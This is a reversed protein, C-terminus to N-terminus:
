LEYYNKIRQINRIRNNISPHTNTEINRAQEPVLKMLVEDLKNPYGSIYLLHSAYSDAQYEHMHRIPKTITVPVVVLNNKDTYKKWFTPHELSLHSLEHFAASRVEEKTFNDLLGQSIKLNSHNDSYAKYQKTPIVAVQCETNFKICSQKIEDVLSKQEQTTMAHCPLTVVIM